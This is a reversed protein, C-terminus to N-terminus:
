LLLPELQKLGDTQGYIIAAQLSFTKRGTQNNANKKREEEEEKLLLGSIM